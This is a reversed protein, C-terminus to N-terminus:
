EGHNTHFGFKREAHKRAILASTKCNFTGLYKLCGDLRINAAWRKGKSYVGTHGSKNNKYKSKNKMNEAPTVVRLNEWRNDTRDHNIHDLMGDPRRGTHLIYALVHSPYTKGHVM